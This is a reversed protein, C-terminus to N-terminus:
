KEVSALEGATFVEREATPVIRTVPVAESEVITVESTKKDFICVVQIAKQGTPEKFLSVVKVKDPYETTTSSTMTSSEYGTQSTQVKETITKMIESSALVTPNNTTTVKTGSTVDVSFETITEAPKNPHAVM